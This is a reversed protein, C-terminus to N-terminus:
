PAERVIIVDAELRFSGTMNTFKAKDSHGSEPFAAM